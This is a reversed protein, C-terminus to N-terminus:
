MELKGNVERSLVEQAGDKTIKFVDLGDGSASDRQLAANVAKMVLAVGDNISMDKKYLTELVGLAFVSGSGSSVFTDIETLSGDAFIDYLHFGKQDNGAFLFHSIGPIMSMKRINGYVMGALLNAAEAVNPKRGSRFEKLKVEARLYKIMLQIDSVTGATTLAMTDNVKHIKKAKKDVIYNGATARKDAALVIGDKCVIGVTTTGTKLVDKDEL